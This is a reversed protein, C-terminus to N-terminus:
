GTLDIPIFKNNEHEYGCYKFLLPYDVEKYKKPVEGIVPKAVNRDWQSSAWAYAVAFTTLKALPIAAATFGVGSFAAGLVRWIGSLAAGGSGTGILSVIWNGAFGSLVGAPSVPIAGVKTRFTALAIKARQVGPLFKALQRDREKMYDVVQKLHHQGLHGAIHENILTAMGELRSASSFGFRFRWGVDKQEMQKAMAIMKVQQIRDVVKATQRIIQFMSAKRPRGYKDPKYYKDLEIQSEGPIFQDGPGVSRAYMLRFVMRSRRLYFAERHAPSKFVYTPPYCQNLENTKEDYELKLEKRNLGKGEKFAKRETAGVIKWAGQQWDWTGEEWVYRGGEYMIEKHRLEEATERVRQNEIWGEQGNRLIVKRWGGQREVVGLLEGKAIRVVGAATNNAEKRIVSVAKTIVSNHESGGNIGGSEEFPIKEFFGEIEEAEPDQPYFGDLEYETMDQVVLSEQKYSVEGTQEDVEKTADLLRWSEIPQSPNHYGAVLNGVFARREQTASRKDPWDIAEDNMLHDLHNDMANDHADFLGKKTLEIRAMSLKEFYGLERLQEDLFWWGLQIEGTPDLAQDLMQATPVEMNVMRGTVVMQSFLYFKYIQKYVQDPHFRHFMHRVAEIVRSPMLKLEEMTKFPAASLLDLLEKKAKDGAIDYDLAYMLDAKHEAAQIVEPEDWVYLVGWSRIDQLVEQLNVFKNVVGIEEPTLQGGSQYREILNVIAENHFIEKKGKNFVQGGIIYSAEGEFDKEVQEIKDILVADWAAKGRKRKGLLNKHEDGMAKFRDFVGQRHDLRENNYASFGGAEGLKLDQIAASGEYDPSVWERLHRSKRQLLYFFYHQWLKNKQDPNKDVDLLREDDTVAQYNFWLNRPLAFGMKSVNDETFRFSAGLVPVISGFVKIFRKFYFDALFWVQYRKDKRSMAKADEGWLQSVMVADTVYDPLEGDPDFDHGEMKNLEELAERYSLGNPLRYIVNCAEMMKQDKRMQTQATAGTHDRVAAQRMRDDLKSFTDFLPSDQIAESFDLMEGMYLSWYGRDLAAKGQWYGGRGMSTLFDGIVTNRAVLAIALASKYGEFGEQETARIVLKAKNGKGELRARAQSRENRLRMEVAALLQGKWYEQPSVAFSEMMKEEMKEWAKKRTEHDKWTKAKLKDFAKAPNRVNMALRHLVADRDAQNNLVAERQKKLELADTWHFKQPEKGHQIGYYYIDALTLHKEAAEKAEQRIQKKEALGVKIAGRELLTEKRLADWATSAQDQSKPTKYKTEQLKSMMEWVHEGLESKLKVGRGPCMKIIKLVAEVEKPRLVRRKKAKDALEDIMMEVAVYLATVDGTREFYLRFDDVEKEMQASVAAEALVGTKEAKKRGIKVGPGKDDKERVEITGHVPKVRSVIKEGSEDMILERLLNILCIMVLSGM